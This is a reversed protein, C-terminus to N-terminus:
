TCTLQLAKHFLVRTRKDLSFTQLCFTEALVRNRFLISQSSVKGMVPKAEFVDPELPFGYLGFHTQLINNLPSRHISLKEGLQLLEATCVKHAQM